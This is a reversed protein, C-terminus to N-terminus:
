VLDDDLQGLESGPISTGSGSCRAKLVGGTWRRVVSLITIQRGEETEGARGKHQVWADQAM